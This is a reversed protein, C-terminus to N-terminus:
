RQLGYSSYLMAKAVRMAVRQTEHLASPRACCQMGKVLPPSGALLTM